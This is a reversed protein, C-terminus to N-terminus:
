PFYNKHQKYYAESVKPFCNLTVMHGIEFLKGNVRFREFDNLIYYSATTRYNVNINILSLSSIGLFLIFHHKIVTVAHVIFMSGHELEIINFRHQQWNPKLNLFIWFQMFTVDSPNAAYVAYLGLWIGFVSQIQLSEMNYRECKM